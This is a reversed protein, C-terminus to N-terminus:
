DFEKGFKDRKPDEAMKKILRARAQPTFGLKDAYMAVIRYWAQLIKTEGDITEVWQIILKLDVDDGFTRARMGAINKNLTQIKDITDCYNALMDIDLNDLLEGNGLEDADDVIRKWALLAGSSLWETATINVKDRKLKAAAARRAAVEDATWHKGTGKKGVEMTEVSVAKTPM